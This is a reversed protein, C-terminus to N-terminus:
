WATRGGDMVLTSGTMYSSADSLLFSIAGNYEGPKAMRGLMSLTSVKETFEPPHGNHMGGPALANSRVNYSGLYTAWARSLGLIGAKSSIYAIDKFKGEDYIRNDPAILGLDSAIFVISGSQQKMMIPAVCQTVVQAATLNIRFEKEWLEVPFKEYPSFQDISAPSGPVADAAAAHILGDIRGHTAIVGDVASAVAEENTIDVPTEHRLDFIVVEAGHDQLYSVWQSGLFGTGGTVVIVKGKVSFMENM